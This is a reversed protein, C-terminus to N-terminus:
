MGIVASSHSLGIGARFIIKFPTVNRGSRDLYAKVVCRMDFTTIPFGYTSMAIAHAAFRNEEDVTFVPQGGPAKAPKETTGRAEKTKLWLTNRHINYRFFYM